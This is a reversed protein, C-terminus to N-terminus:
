NPAHATLHYSLSYSTKGLNLFAGTQMDRSASDAVSGVLEYDGPALIDHFSQGNGGSFIAENSSLSILQVSGQSGGSVMLSIDTDKDLTFALADTASASVDAGQHAVLPSTFSVAALLNVSYNALTPSNSFTNSTSGTGSYTPAFYTGAAVQSGTSTGLGDTLTTFINQMRFPSWHYHIGTRPSGYSVYRWLASTASATASGSHSVGPLIDSALAVNVISVLGLGFVLQLKNM